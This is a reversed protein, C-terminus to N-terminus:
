RTSEYTVSSRIAGTILGVIDERSTEEKARIGALRGQRLVIVRDAVEFVHELNHSIIVIAKGQTRLDVILDTIKRIQEVGLAATPEDMLLIREDHSIARAIAVAQRQGGSLDGVPTRVSPITTRLRGLVVHADAIMKRRDIFIGLRRPERGLYINGAVDRTDILALHQHVTAIGYRQADAPTRIDIRQDDLYVEGSDAQHVGSLVKVLTSKGAGNDGVLAVVEGPYLTFGVGDLAQVHGYTKTIGKLELLPDRAQKDSVQLSRM